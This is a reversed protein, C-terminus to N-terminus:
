IVFDVIEVEGDQAEVIVLEINIEGESDFSITGNMGEIEIENLAEIPTKNNKDIADLVLALDYGFTAGVDPKKGYKAKFEKYFQKTRENEIMSEPGAAYINDLLPGVENRVFATMTDMSAILTIESGLEKRQKLVNTNHSAFGIFYIADSDMAKTLPTRFDTNPIEFSEEHVITGSFNKKFQEKMSQGYEDMLTIISVDEFGQSDAFKGALAAYKGSATFLRFANKSKGAFEDNSVFSSILPKDYEEALSILPISISSQLSVLVDVERTDLLKKASTIGTKAQSQSDEVVLEFDMDYKEMAFEMGKMFDEGIVGVPGTLPIVAAVQLKKLDQDPPMFFLFIFLAVLAVIAIIGFLEPRKNKEFLSLGM